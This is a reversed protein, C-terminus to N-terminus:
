REDAALDAFAPYDPLPKALQRPLPADLDLVGERALGTVLYAFVAKTLSAGYMVTDVTLPRRAATDADGYAQQYVVRGNEIV